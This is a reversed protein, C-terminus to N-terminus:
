FDFNKGVRSGMGRLRPGVPRPAYVGASITDARQAETFTAAAM